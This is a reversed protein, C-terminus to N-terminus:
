LGAEEATASEEAARKLTDKGEGDRTDDRDEREADRQLIARYMDRHGAFQERMAAPLAGVCEFEAVSFENGDRTVNKLTVKTVVEHPQYRGKTGIRQVYAPWNKAGTLTVRLRVPIEEGPLALAFSVYNNCKGVQDQNFAEERADRDRADRNRTCSTCGGKSQPDEANPAINVGDNSFCRPLEGQETEGFPKGFWSNHRTFAVIVGVLGDKGLVQSGDERQFLNAGHGKVKVLELKPRANGMADKIDEATATGPANDQKAIELLTDRDFDGLGGMDMGAKAPLQKEKAM